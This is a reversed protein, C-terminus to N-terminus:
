RAGRLARECALVETRAHVLQQTPIRPCARSTHRQATPEDHPVWRCVRRELASRPTALRARTLRLAPAEDQAGTMRADNKQCQM